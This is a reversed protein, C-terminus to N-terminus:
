PLQVCENGTILPGMGFMSMLRAFELGYKSGAFDAASSAGSSQAFQTSVDGVTRGTMAGVPGGGKKSKVYCQHAVFLGCLYDSQCGYDLTYLCYFVEIYAEIMADPVTALEPYLLRFKDLTLAM